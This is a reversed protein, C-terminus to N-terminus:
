RERGQTDRMQVDRELLRARVTDATTSFRQGIRALSWGTAYLQVAEDVQEKTLRGRIQVGARHLLNSVTKRNIKFREALDYITAGGEYDKILEGIQRDTLQRARGSKRREPSSRTPGSPDQLKRILAELKRVQM